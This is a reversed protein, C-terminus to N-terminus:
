HRTLFVIINGRKYYIISSCKSYKIRTDDYCYYYTNHGCDSYFMKCSSLQDCEEKAAPLTSSNKLRKEPTCYTYIQRHYPDAYPLLKHFILSVGLLNMCYHNNCLLKVNGIYIYNGFICTKCSLCQNLISTAEFDAWCTKSSFEWTM